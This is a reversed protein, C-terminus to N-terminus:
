EHLFLRADDLIGRRAAGEPAHAAFSRIAGDLILSRATGADIGRTRLYYLQDDDISSVSAAHGARVDDSAIRLEPVLDCRVRDGVMIGRMERHAEGERVGLAATMLAHAQLKSEDLLVYRERSIVSAKSGLLQEELQLRVSSAGSRIALIHQECRAGDAVRTIVRHQVDDGGRYWYLLVARAHPDVHVIRDEYFAGAYAGTLACVIVADAGERVVIETRTRETRTVDIMDVLAQHTGPAIEIRRDAEATPQLLKIEM